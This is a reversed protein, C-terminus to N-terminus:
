ARLGTWRRAESKAKGQGLYLILPPISLWLGRWVGTEKKIARRDESKLRGVIGDCGVMGYWAM